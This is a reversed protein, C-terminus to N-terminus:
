GIKRSSVALSFLDGDEVLVVTEENDRLSARLTVIQDATKLAECLSATSVSVKDRNAQAILQKLTQSPASALAEIDELVWILDSPFQALVSSVAKGTIPFTMLLDIPSTSM